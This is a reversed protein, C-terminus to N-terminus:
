TSAGELSERETVVFQARCALRVLEPPREQTRGTVPDRWRQRCSVAAPDNFHGTIRYRIGNGPPDDVLEDPTRAIDSGPAYVVALGHNYDGVFEQHVLPLLWSPSTWWDAPWDAAPMSWAYGEFSLPVNGFCAVRELDFIATIQGITVPLAPCALTLGAIWPVGDLSAAAVWGFHPFTDSGPPLPDVLYWDYGSGAVPGDLVFVRRGVTLHPALVKSDTGVSPSSRVVLDDALVTAFANVQLPGPRGPLYTYATPPPTRSPELTPAPTPNLTALAASPPVAPAATPLSSRISVLTPPPTTPLPMGERTRSSPAASSGCGALLITAALLLRGRRPRRWAHM